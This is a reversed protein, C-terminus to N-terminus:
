NTYRSLILGTEMPTSVPNCNTMDFQNLIKDILATQFLYIHHNILDREIAVGVYFKAERLDKIEWISSLEAKFKSAKLLNSIAMLFDDVHIGTLITGSETEHLYLCYECSIRVFGFSAMGANMAKNWIRSGQPLVYLGKLLEWIHDELGKVEFGRPQKMYVEKGPELKGCLFATTIDIQHLEWGRVATIHAIARFM